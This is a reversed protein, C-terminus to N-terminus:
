FIDRAGEIAKVPNAHLYVGTTDLRSHGLLMQVEHIPRGSNLLHSAFGHRLTHFSIEKKLVKFGLTTIFHQLARRKLNLPLLDVATQNLRKPRPVIRDKGGKGSVIRISASEVREKTLAPVETEKVVVQGTKKNTRKSIGKFGTIESIRMGAEFGLLMAIRYKKLRLKRTKGKSEREIKLTFALLLEFEEQTIIKPLKKM